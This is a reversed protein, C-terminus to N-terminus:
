KKIKKSIDEITQYKIYDYSIENELTGDGDFYNIIDCLLGRAMHIRMEIAGGTHPMLMVNDLNRLRSDMPLPETEYVDLIARIRGTVVEDELDKENIISGRATNVILAKDKMLSLMKKDVIHYNEETMGAHISVIDSTKFLEELSCVEINYKEIDEKSIDYEACVKIKVDFAGLMRAVNKAIMGFGYLGVTKGKLTYTYSSEPREGNKEMGKLIKYMGKQAALIYCITGEAVGEALYKNATLIKIGRKQAGESMVPVASGGTHAIIKLKKACSLIEEDLKGTIGWLTMVADADSIERKFEDITDDSYNYVSVCAHEKAFAMNEPTFFASFNYDSTTNIILIKMCIDGKVMKRKQLNGDKKIVQVHNRYSYM